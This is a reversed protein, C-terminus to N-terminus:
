ASEQDKYESLNPHLGIKECYKKFDEIDSFVKVGYSSAHESPCYYNYDHSEHHKAQRLLRARFEKRTEGESASCYWNRSKDAEERSRNMYSFCNGGDHFVGFFIQDREDVIEAKMEETMFKEPQPHKELWAISMKDGLEAAKLLSWQRPIYKGKGYSQITPLDLDLYTDLYHDKWHASTYRDAAQVWKIFDPNLEKGEPQYNGLTFKGKLDVDGLDVYRTIKYWAIGYKKKIEKLKEKSNSAINVTSGFLTVTIGKEAELKKAFAKADKTYGFGNSVEYKLEKAM